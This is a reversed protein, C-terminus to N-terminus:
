LKRWAEIVNKCSIEFVKYLSDDKKNIWDKSSAPPKPYKKNLIWKGDEWYKGFYIANRAIMNSDVSVVNKLYHKALMMQRHPSGGLIHIKREMLSPNGIWLSAKAFSTQSPLGIIFEEPIRDECHFHIPIIINESYQKLKKAVMLSVEIDSIRWIDPAVVYKPRYKRALYIHKSINPKKFWWDLFEVPCNCDLHWFQTNRGVLFGHKKAICCFPTRQCLVVDIKM